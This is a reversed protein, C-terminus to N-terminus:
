QRSLLDITIDCKFIAFFFFLLCCCSVFHLVVCFLCVFLFVFSVLSKGVDLEVNNSFILGVCHCQVVDGGRGGGGRYVHVRIRVNNIYSQKPRLVSISGTNTSDSM